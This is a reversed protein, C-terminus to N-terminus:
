VARRWRLRLQYLMAGGVTTAGFVTLMSGPGTSPMVVTKTVSITQAPPQPPPPPPQSPKCIQVTAKDSKPPLNPPQMTGTNTLYSNNCADVDKAIAEFVMTVTQGAAMHPITFGTTTVDDNYTVGDVVLSGAVYSLGDPLADKIVVNDLGTQGTDKVDLRFQVHDNPKAVVNEVWVTQGSLRDRKVIEYSPPPPPPPQQPPPQQPQQPPPAVPTANVPNGCSMIVAYLFKGGDMKLLATLPSSVFSESPPRQYAAGGAIPTDSAAMRQRGATIADTAVLDFGGSANKVYVKNDSTVQGIVLGSLASSCNSIGFAQFIGQTNGVNAACKQQLSTEDSVGCRIVANDDCDAAQAHRFSAILLANGGLGVVMLLIGVLQLRKATFWRKFM